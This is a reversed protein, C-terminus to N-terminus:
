GLGRGDALIAHDVVAAPLSALDLHVKEPALEDQRASAGLREVDVPHGRRLYGIPQAGRKVDDGHLKEVGQQQGLDLRGSRARGLLWLLGQVPLLAIGRLMAARGIEELGTGTRPLGLRQHATDGLEDFFADIGRADQHEGERVLGCALKGLPDGGDM